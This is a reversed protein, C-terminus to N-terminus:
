WPRPEFEGPKADSPRFEMTDVEPENPYSGEDKWEPATASRIPMVPEVQELKTQKVAPDIKDKKVAKKKKKVKVAPETVAPPPVHHMGRPCGGMYPCHPYHHERHPDERCDPPTGPAISESEEGSMSDHMQAPEDSKPAEETPVPTDPTERPVDYDLPMPNVQVPCTTGKHPCSEPLAYNKEVNPDSTYDPVVVEVEEKVETPMPLEEPVLEDGMGFFWLWFKMCERDCPQSPVDAPEEAPMPLEEPQAAEEGGFCSELWCDLEARRQQEMEEKILGEMACQEDDDKCPPMTDPLDEEAAEGEFPMPPVSIGEVEQPDHCAEEGQCPLGEQMPEAEEAGPEPLCAASLDIVELPPCVERQPVDYTCQRAHEKPAPQQKVALDGMLTMAHQGVGASMMVVPNTEIAVHYAGRVCAGTLSGPHREAYDAALYAVIAALVAGLGLYCFIKHM